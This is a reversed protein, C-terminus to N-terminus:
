RASGCKDREREYSIMERMDGLVEYREADLTAKRVELLKIKETDHEDKIMAAIERGREYLRRAEERYQKIM